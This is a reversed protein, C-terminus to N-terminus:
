KKETQVIALNPWHSNVLPCRRLGDRMAEDRCANAGQGNPATLRLWAGAAAVVGAMGVADLEGGMPNISGHSEDPALRGPDNSSNMFGVLCIGSDTAPPQKQRELVLALVIDQLVPRGTDSGDDDPQARLSTVSHHHESSAASHDSSWSEAADHDKSRAEADAFSWQSFGARMRPEFVDCLVVYMRDALGFVLQRSAFVLARCACDLGGVMTLSPGQLGWRLAVHAAPAGDISDPFDIPNTGALGHSVLRTAYRVRTQQAGLASGVCVGERNPQEVPILLGANRRAEETCKVARISLPDLRRAWDDRLAGQESSAATGSAGRSIASPWWLHGGSVRVVGMGWETPAACTM